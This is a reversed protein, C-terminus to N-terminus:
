VNVPEPTILQSNLDNCYQILDINQRQRLLIAKKLVLQLPTNRKGLKGNVIREVTKINCQVSDAIVSIDGKILGHRNVRAKKNKNRM